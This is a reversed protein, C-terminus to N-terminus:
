GTDQNNDVYASLSAIRIVSYPTKFTTNTTAPTAEVHIYDGANLDVTLCYSQTNDLAGISTMRSVISYIVGNKYLNYDTFNATQNIQLSINVIYRGGKGVPVTFKWAAGTTVANDSDTIKSDFDLITTSNATLTTNSGRFYEAVVPQVLASVILWTAPSNNTLIYFAGTDSQRGIKGVDGSVVSQALRAVNDTWTWTHAVHIDAGTLSSHTTTAM